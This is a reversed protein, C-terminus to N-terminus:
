ISTKSRLNPSLKRVFFGDTMHVDVVDTDFHQFIRTEPDPEHPENPDPLPLYSASGIDEGQLDAFSFEFATITLGELAQAFAEASIPEAPLLRIAILDPM